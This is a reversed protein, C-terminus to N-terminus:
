GMPDLAERDMYGRRAELRAPSAPARGHSRQRALRALRQRWRPRAGPRRHRRATSGRRHPPPLRLRRRHRQRPLRHRRFRRRNPIKPNARKRRPIFSFFPPFTLSAITKSILVKKSKGIGVHEWGAIKAVHFIHDVATHIDAKDPEVANLFRKVFFVMVVGGNDKVRALVDDPANRYSKALEYCAIHSFMVPSRTIALVDRMTRHSTHSLDVMMGLRNMEEIAAVGFETLGGDIGTATVTSAATAFANNCNHTLTIYRVGLNFLQRIVGIASGAQHLGEAGLMSGIRGSKFASIACASTECYQMDSSYEAFLRKAVDIQELTDRVNHNPDDLHQIDPCEVYVSWFQGGVRGARLRKLDTHSAVGRWLDFRSRDYIRNQLELRLLYPLDNHGDILPTTSLIRDARATYNLPDITPEFAAGMWYYFASSLSVLLVVSRAIGWRFGRQPERALILDQTSGQAPLDSVSHDLGDGAVRRRLQTDRGQAAEM